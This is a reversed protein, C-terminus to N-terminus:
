ARRRFLPRPDDAAGQYAVSFENFAQLAGQADKGDKLGFSDFGCRAMYHLQDRLVDGVARLEKRYDHQTRLRRALSYGRGDTYTKFQIALLAVEDAVAAADAANADSPLLVGVQGAHSKLADREAQYRALPVLIDGSEPLPADQDLQTFSDEVLERNKILAM